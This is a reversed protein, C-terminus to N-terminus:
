VGRQEGRQEALRRDPEGKEPSVQAQAPYVLSEGPQGASIGGIVNALERSQYPRAVQTGPGFRGDPVDQGLILGQELGVLLNGHGDALLDRRALCAMLVGSVLLRGVAHGARALGRGVPRTGPLGAGLLGAQLRRSVLAGRALTIRALTIRALALRALGIRTLSDRALTIRALTVRALTVRALTVRALTVRALSDRALSDRALAVRALCGCARTRARTICMLTLRARGARLLRAALEPV